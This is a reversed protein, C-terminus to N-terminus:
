IVNNLADYKAKMEVVLQDINNIKNEQNTIKTLIDKLENNDKETSSQTQPKMMGGFINQQPLKKIAQFM